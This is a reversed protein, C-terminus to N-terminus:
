VRQREDADTWCWQRWSRREEDNRNITCITIEHQHHFHRNRRHLLLLFDIKLKWFESACDQCKERFEKDDNDIIKAWKNVLPFSMKMISANCGSRWCEMGKTELFVPNQLKAIKGSLCCFMTLGIITSALLWHNFDLCGRTSFSSLGLFSNTIYIFGIGGNSIKQRHNTM